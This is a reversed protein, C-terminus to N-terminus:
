TKFITSLADFISDANDGLVWVQWGRSVFLSAGDQQHPLLLATKRAEWALETEAIVEGRNGKLEYGADPAPIGAQRLRTLLVAVAPEAFRLALEWKEESPANAGTSSGTSAAEAASAYNRGELLGRSTVLSLDPLFQLWNAMHLFQQWAPKFNKVLQALDVDDFLRCIV